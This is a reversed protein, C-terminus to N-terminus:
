SAGSPALTKAAPASSKAAEISSGDTDRRTAFRQSRRLWGQHGQPVLNERRVVGIRVVEPQGAVRRPRRPLEGDDRAHVAPEIRNRKEAECGAVRVYHPVGAADDRVVDQARKGDRVDY